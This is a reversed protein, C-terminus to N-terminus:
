PPRHLLGRPCWEPLGPLYEMVRVSNKILFFLHCNNVQLISFSEWRFPLETPHFPFGPFFGSGNAILFIIAVPPIDVAVSWKSFKLISINPYQGLGRVTKSSHWPLCSYYGMSPSSPGPSSNNGGKSATQPRTRGSLLNLHRLRYWKWCNFWTNITASSLDTKQHRAVTIMLDLAFVKVAVRPPRFFVGLTPCYFRPVIFPHILWLM